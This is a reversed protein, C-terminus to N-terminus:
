PNPICYNCCGSQTGDTCANGDCSMDNPCAIPSTETGEVRTGLLYEYDSTQRYVYPKKSFPDCPVIKMYTNTVPPSSHDTYEIKDDASGCAAPFDVTDPYQRADSRYFELAGRIQQLDAIRRGDRVKKQTGGYAGATVVALIGLIAMVLLLEVLTFGLSNKKMM